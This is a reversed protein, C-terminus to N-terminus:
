GIDFISLVNDFILFADDFISFLYEIIPLGHEIIACDDELAGRRYEIIPLGDGVIGPPVGSFPAM